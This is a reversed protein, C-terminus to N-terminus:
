SHYNWRGALTHKLPMGNGIDLPLSKHHGKEKNVEVQIGAVEERHGSAHLACELRLGGFM